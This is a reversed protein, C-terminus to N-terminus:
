RGSGASRKLANAATSFMGAILFFASKQKLHISLIWSRFRISVRSWRRCNRSLWIQKAAQM